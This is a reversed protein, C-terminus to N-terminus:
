KSAEEFAKWFNREFAGADVVGQVTKAMGLRPDVKARKVLAYMALLEGKRKGHKRSNKALRRFMILNGGISLIEGGNQMVAKPRDEKRILASKTPRAGKMPLCIWRRYPFKTGGEEQRVMYEHIDEVIATLEQKTAKRIRVGKEEWSRRRLTFKSSLSAQVAEQGDKATLTLGRAISFRVNEGDRRLQGRAKDADVKITMPKNAM